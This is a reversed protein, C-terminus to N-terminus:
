RGRRSKKLCKRLWYLGHCSFCEVPKKESEAEKAEVDRASLGLGLAKGMPKKEKSFASKKLCKKLMRPGDCFLCKLKDM